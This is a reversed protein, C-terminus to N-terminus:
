PFHRKIVVLNECLSRIDLQCVAKILACVTISHVLDLGTLLLLDWIYHCKDIKEAFLNEDSLTKWMSNGYIYVNEISLQVSVRLWIRFPVILYAKMIFAFIVANGM